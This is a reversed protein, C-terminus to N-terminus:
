HLEIADPLSFTFEEELLRGRLWRRQAVGSTPPSLRLSAFKGDLVAGRLWRRRAVGLTPLSLSLSAIEKDAAAHGEAMAASSLLRRVPGWDAAHSSYFCVGRGAASGEAVTVAGLSPGM